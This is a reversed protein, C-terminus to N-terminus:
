NKQEEKVAANLFTQIQLFLDDKVEKPVNNNAPESIESILEEVTIDMGRKKIVDSEFVIIFLIFDFCFQRMASVRRRSAGKCLKKSQERWGSDIM